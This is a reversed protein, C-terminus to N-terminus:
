VLDVTEDALEKSWDANTDIALHAGIALAQERKKESRSTVIIRAGVHKAFQILFTAVGSSAGPIFVTDGKKLQGRTFLARYGTLSALGLVGAEEWTLFQPKKEIQEANITIEQTFTGHDPMGLINFNQPPAVSKEFWKLSPNIIVEDGVSFDKVKSG